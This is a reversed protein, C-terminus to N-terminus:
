ASFTPQILLYNQTAKPLLAFSTQDPFSLKQSEFQTPGTQTDGRYHEKWIFSNRLPPSVEESSLILAQGSTNARVLDIGCQAM